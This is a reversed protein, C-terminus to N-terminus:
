RPEARVRAALHVGYLPATMTCSFFLESTAVSADIIQQLGELGAQTSFVLSLRILALWSM